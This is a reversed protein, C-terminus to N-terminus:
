LVTLQSILYFYESVLDRNKVAGALSNSSEPFGIQQLIQFISPALSEADELFQSLSFRRLIESTPTLQQPQFHKALRQAEADVLQRVTSLAWDNTVKPQQQQISDLLSHGHKALMRSVQSSRAPDKTNILASTFSYLTPYGANTIGNLASNLKVVEEQQRVAEEEHRRAQEEDARREAEEKERSQRELRANTIDEATFPKAFRRRKPVPTFGDIFTVGNVPTSLVNIPTCPTRPSANEDNALRKRPTM